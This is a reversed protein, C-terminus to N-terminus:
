PRLMLRESTAADVAARSLRMPVRRGQGWLRAYDGYRPSLLNGSQGSSQIFSGGDPNAMDYIARYSAGHIAAFPRAEDRVLNATQNVTFRDGGVPIVTDFFYATLAKKGFPRHEAQVAHLKGWQWTRMDSGARESIEKLARGLAEIAVTDCSEIQSTGRKDCFVTQPSQGKLAAVLPQHFNNPNWIDPWLSQMEDKFVERMLERWWAAMIAPEPKDPAMRGDWAAIMDIAVKERSAPDPKLATLLPKLELMALSLDDTHIAAFTEPTHRTQADLLQDIRQARYPLAWDVGIQHPYDQPVIKENASAIWGRDNTEKRPLAEFPLYGAWDYRADWGPAPAQGKFDNEPKRIPVRGASIMGISGQTDAFVINQQPSHFDRLALKFEDLSAARNMKLGAQATLDGPLLATWRFALVYQTQGTMAKAAPISAESIVPGHRTERVTMSVDKAGKVKLIETRTEFPVFGNPTQYQEPNAPNVRELYLDQVDPGTNTFGWAIHQNRGLIVTPLGPLTGGIVDLGPANLHALYWLAPTAFGLHPDNALLPKGSATREGAVVWNNSGVDRDGSPPPAGVLKLPAAATGQPRALGISRYMSAYDATQLPADGPYPLLISDIAAKDMVSALRLRLIEQNWNGGLDWAMMISWGVSDELKWREPAPLRLIWFEPASKGTDLYANVGDAYRQLTQITEQDFEALAAKARRAVGLTRLFKDTELAAPGVLEAVRGAAIHRQMQMQWLRDQAHVYGLAFAADGPSKAYIHAVADQDRIVEVEAQLGRAQLTGTTQPLSNSRAVYLGIVLTSALVLVVAILGKILGQLM